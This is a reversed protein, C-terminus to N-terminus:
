QHTPGWESPVNISHFSLIKRLKIKVELDGSAPSMLQISVILTDLYTKQCRNVQHGWESPVNISHFGALNTLLSLLFALDGSAPSM